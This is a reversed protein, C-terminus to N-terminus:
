LAGARVCVNKSRRPGESTQPDPVHIQAKGKLYYNM